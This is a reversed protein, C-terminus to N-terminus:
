LNFTLRTNMITKYRRFINEKLESNIIKIYEGLLAKIHGTKTTKHKVPLNVQQLSAALNATLKLM